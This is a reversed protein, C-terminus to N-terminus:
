ALGTYVGIVLGVIEVEMDEAGRGGANLVVPASWKPNTSRPWLEVRGDRTIAIQKITRERLLGGGRRREVVVWDGDRASYGMEIADVVHAFSGEPIRKNASDGVVEELWQPWESYRPDPMVARPPERFEQTDVDAELWYGAQVKHRVPLFLPIIQASTAQAIKPPTAGAASALKALTKSSTVFKYSPKIARQITSAAVGAARAWQPPSLGKEQMVSNLWDRIEAAPDDSMGPMHGYGQPTPECCIREQRRLMLADVDREHRVQKAVEFVGAFARADRRSRSQLGAANM